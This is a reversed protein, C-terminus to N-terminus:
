QDKNAIWCIPPFESMIEPKTNNLIHDLPCWVKLRMLCKCVNCSKLSEGQSTQFDFTSGRLKQWGEIATKLLEAPAETYWAGKVNKPCAVCIAARKEALEKPEPDGGSQIWDLIVGTGQAARKIDAAVVAARHIVQNSSAPFFSPTVGAIPELPIGTRLAAAQKIEQKIVVPDTSLKHQVCIAPNKLRHDRVATVSASLGVMAM